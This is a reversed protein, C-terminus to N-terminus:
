SYQFTDVQAHMRLTLLTSLVEFILINTCNKMKYKINKILPSANNAILLIVTAFCHDGSDRTVM